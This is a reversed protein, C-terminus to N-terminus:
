HIAFARREVARVSFGHMSLVIVLDPNGFAAPEDQALLGIDRRAARIGLSVNGRAIFVAVHLRRLGSSCTQAVRQSGVALTGESHSAGFYHRCHDPGPLSKRHHQNGGGVACAHGSRGLEPSRRHHGGFQRRPALPLLDSFERQEDRAAGGVPVADSQPRILGIGQRAMEALCLLLIPVYFARWVPAFKFYPGFILYPFRLGALWWLSFFATIALGYVSQSPRRGEAKAIRPWSRPNWNEPRFFRERVAYVFTLWGFEAFLIGPFMLFAKPLPKGGAVVTFMLFAFVLLTVGLVIRLVRWYEPFLSPGILQRRPRFREAVLAPNGWRQLIVEVEAENLKRGLEAEQDEIQSRIDEALEALIDEQQAKPLWFRVAQLYRDVLEM